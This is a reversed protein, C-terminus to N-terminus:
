KGEPNMKPTMEGHSSSRDRITKTTAEESEGKSGDEARRGERKRM